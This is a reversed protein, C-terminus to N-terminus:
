NSYKKVRKGKFMKVADRIVQARKYELWKIEFWLKIKPIIVGPRFVVVDLVSKGYQWRYEKYGAQYVDDEYKCNDCGCCQSSPNRDCMKYQRSM